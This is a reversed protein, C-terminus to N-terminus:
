SELGRFYIFMTRRWFGMGHDKLFKKYSGMFKNKDLAVSGVTDCLKIIEQIRAWQDTKAFEDQGYKYSMLAGYEILLYTMINGLSKDKDLMESARKKIEEKSNELKEKREDNVKSITEDLNELFLYNIAQGYIAGEFSNPDVVGFYENVLGIKLMSFDGECSELRKQLENENYNQKM